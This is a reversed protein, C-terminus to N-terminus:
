VTRAHENSMTSSYRLTPAQRGLKVFICSLLLVQLVASGEILGAGSLNSLVAFWCHLHQLGLTILNGPFDPQRSGCLAFRPVWLRATSLLHDYAVWLRATSLLHDCALNTKYPVAVALCRM